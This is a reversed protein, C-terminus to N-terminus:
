INCTDVQINSASMVLTCKMTQILQIEKFHWGEYEVVSSDNFVPVQFEELELIKNAKMFAEKATWIQFFSSRQKNLPLNKLHLVENPHLYEQALEMFDFEPDIYELDIGIQVDKGIAIVSFQRSSSISFDLHLHNQDGAIVSKGQENLNLRIDTPSIDLYQGLITRLVGHRIVYNTRDNGSKFGSAKEAEDTQLLSKYFGYDQKLKETDLFLITIIRNSLVDTKQTLFGAYRDNLDPQHKDPKRNFYGAVPKTLKSVFPEKLFDAHECLYTNIHIRGKINYRWYMDPFAKVLFHMQNRVPHVESDTNFFHLDGKYKGKPTYNNWIFWLKKQLQDRHHISEDIFVKHENMLFPVRYRLYKRKNRFSLRSFLEAENFIRDLLTNKNFLPKIGETDIIGLFGTKVGSQQLQLAMEFVVRGGLSYGIFHYPGNAQVSRVLNLFYDALESLALNPLVEEPKEPYELVYLPQRTNLKEAFSHFTFANGIIGPVLFVPEGEGERIKVLEKPLDSVHEKLLLEKLLCITPYEFISKVSLKVPFEQNMRHILRIALLSYGGIAFFNDHVDISEINLVEKWIAKLRCEVEPSANRSSDTSVSPSNATINTKKPTTDPRIEEQLILDDPHTLCIRVSEDFLLLWQRITDPKYLDTNYECRLHLKGSHEEAIFTLDCKSTGSSLIELTADIGSMRIDQEEANELVFLIQYLPTKALDRNPVIKEVLKDFPIDQHDFAEKVTQNVRDIAQRYTLTSDFDTSLIMSNVFLGIVDEFEHQNRNFHPSAISIAQEGTIRYLMVKFCTVLSVFLSIGQKKSFQKLQIVIKEDFTYDIYDGNFTQIAPRPYDAPLETGYYNSGIKQKWYNTVDPNEKQVRVIWNAYGAYQFSPDPLDIKKGDSLSNYILSLERKFIGLSWGDFAIHHIDLFLLHHTTTIRYLKYRMVPHRDPLFPLSADSKLRDTINIDPLTSLDAIELPLETYENIRQYPTGQDYHYSTRLIHHRRRIHNLTSELAKIDLRGMLTISMPINYVANAGNYESFFWMGKQATSLPYKGNDSYKETSITVGSDAKYKGILTNLHAITPNPYFAKIPISIGLTKNVRFIMQTAQLSTGGLDFFHCHSDDIRTSLIEEWLNVPFSHSSINDKLSKKQSTTPVPLNERDVKGNTTVPFYNLEIIRHPIMYEPLWEKLSDKLQSADISSVIECQGTQRNPTHGTIYTIIQKDRVLTLCSSVSKNKLIAAEIESLEIRFGRIKVQHDIRGIYEINGDPLFRCLDGTKYLRMEKQRDKIRIRIFKKQTLEPNNLYGTALGKGGIYLEGTKGPAVPLLHDDLIYVETNSIAKGIPISQINRNQIDPIQYCCAFTTSETPGYGNIIQSDPLLRQAKRVHNVSLAEGGTLIYRVNSLM